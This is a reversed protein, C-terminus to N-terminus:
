KITPPIFSTGSWVHWYKSDLADCSCFSVDAYPSFTVGAGLICDNEIEYQELIKSCSNLFEAEKDSPPESSSPQNFGRGSWVHWVLNEEQCYDGHDGIDYPFLLNFKVGQNQKILLSLSELLEQKEM